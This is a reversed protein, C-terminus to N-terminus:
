IIEFFSLDKFLDIIYNALALLGATIYFNSSLVKIFLYIDIVFKDISERNQSLLVATRSNCGKEFARDYLSFDVIIPTILARSLSFSLWNIVCSHM